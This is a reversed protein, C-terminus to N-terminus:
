PQKRRVNDQRSAHPAKERPKSKHSSSRHAAHSPLTLRQLLQWKGFTLQNIKLHARPRLAAEDRSRARLPPTRRALLAVNVENVHHGEKTRLKVLATRAAVYRLAAAAARVKCFHLVAADRARKAGEARM